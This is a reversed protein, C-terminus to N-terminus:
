TAAAQLPSLAVLPAYALQRPLQTQPLSPLAGHSASVHGAPAQPPPPSVPPGGLALCIARGWGERAQQHWRLPGQGRAPVPGAAGSGRGAQGKAAALRVTPASRPQKGRLAAAFLHSDASESPTAGAEARAKCPGVAGSPISLKGGPGLVTRLEM